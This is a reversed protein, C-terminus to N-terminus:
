RLKVPAIYEKKEFHMIAKILQDDKQQRLGELTQYVPIDPTIGRGHFPDGNRHTVKMATYSILHKSPTAVFMMNGNTGATPEGILTGLKNFKIYEAISEGYSITKDNILFVKEMELHPYSPYIKWSAKDSIQKANKFNPQTIKQFSFNSSKLTDKSLYSLLDYSFSTPYERLDFVIGKAQKLEELNAFFDKKSVKINVYYIGEQLNYIHKSPTDTSVKLGQVPITRYEGNQMKIKISYKLSNSLNSVLKREKYIEKAAHVSSLNKTFIDSVPRQDIEVLETGIIEKPLKESNVQAVIVKNEIFQFQILQPKPKPYLGFRKLKGIGMHGDKLNSLMRNLILLADDKHLASINGLAEVLSQEWNVKAEEHYPYFHYFFGWVYILNMIQFELSKPTISKYHNTYNQKLSAFANTKYSYAAYVSIPFASYLSDSLRITIFEDPKPVEKNAHLESFPVTHVRTHYPKLITRYIIPLNNKEMSAGVHSYYSVHQSNVATVPSQSLNIEHTDLVLRQTISNFLDELKVHLDKDSNANKVKYVGYLMHKDWEIQQSAQTPHFYKIYSTLKALAVLNKVQRPTLNDESHNFNAAYLPNIHVAFGILLILLYKM